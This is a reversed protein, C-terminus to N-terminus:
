LPPKRKAGFWIAAGVLIAFGSIVPPLKLQRKQTTRMKLDGIQAITDTRNYPIGGFLLGLFGLMVLAAGMAKM